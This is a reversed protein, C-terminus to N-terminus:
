RAPGGRLYPNTSDAFKRHLGDKCPVISVMNAVRRPKGTTNPGSGHVTLGDFLILDGTRAPVPIALSEDIVAEQLITGPVAVVYFILLAVAVWTSAMHAGEYCTM